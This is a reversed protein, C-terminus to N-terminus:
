FVNPMDTSHITLGSIDAFFFFSHFVINFYAFKLINILGNVVLLKNGDKSFTLYLETSILYKHM